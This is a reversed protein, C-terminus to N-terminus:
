VIYSKYDIRTTLEVRLTELTENACIEEILEETGGVITFDLDYDTCVCWRNDESWLYTPTGRLDDQQILQNVESLKGLFLRPHYSESKLLHYYFYCSEHNPLLEILQDLSDSDMTGGEPSVLYRPWNKNFHCWFTFGNIEPKLPIGLEKSIDKWYIRSSLTPEVDEHTDWLESKDSVTEDIYMSHLIKCYAQFGRPIVCEVTTYECKDSEYSLPKLTNAEIWNLPHFDILEKM